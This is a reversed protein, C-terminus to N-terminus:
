VVAIETLLTFVVKGSGFDFTKVLNKECGRKQSVANVKALLLM